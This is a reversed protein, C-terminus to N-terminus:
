RQIILKQVRQGEKNCVKVLYIGSPVDGINLSIFDSGNISITKAFLQVGDLTLLTVTADEQQESSMAITILDSAPNPYIKFNIEHLVENTASVPDERSEVITGGEPATTCEDDGQDSTVCTEENYSLMDMFEIDDISWGMGNHTNAITGFRFRVQIDKGLWSSLDVYTAHFDDGGDGSFAKLGTSIFTRYDLSRKYGNRIMDEGLQHWDTEGLERVEVLGGNMGAQTQYRHYFRLVPHEGDVHFAYVDPNLMLAQQSKDPIEKTTWSFSGSHAPVSDNITWNNAAASGITYATWTTDNVNAVNDLFIRKSWSESSTHLKYIITDIEGPNLNGLEFLLDQGQQIATYNASNAMFTTGDPIIDKVVVHTAIEDKYNGVHISVQIDEGPQIFDTVSKTIIISHSCAPPLDFAEVQDGADESSGQDASYGLGRRAFVSWLLCIDDGNYLAEDAAMIANRADVFGPDCAVNKLGDVVLRIAKYNGSSEDYPNASWGYQDALAWYMDWLMNAWVEGIEHIEQNIAVDGYTLPSVNMDTSYSFRRLGNDGPSEKLVYTAIGRRTTGNDGPQVTTGLAFFDSWGEKMQEANDLCIKDPGGALRDSIGHGFEHAIISGQLDSDLRNPGQQGPNVITVKLGHGVYERLTKAIKLPVSIVPIHVNPADPGAAMNYAKNDASCIIVGIAGANQAQLAKYGFQCAGRDIMAIKGVLESANLIDQCADATSPSEVGDNVLVVEATVPVDTVYTGDGWGASPVNTYYKGKIGIPENVLLYSPFDYFDYMFITPSKGENRNFYEANNFVTDTASGSQAVAWIFDNGLGGRGYNNKQFNGAAEDFGFHYSFDHMYNLWYFLNVVGANINQGADQNPDFPFDFNLEPGGDPEDHWSFGSNTTDQYAFVNNGDTITYEPGVQGDTDHWGYPSALSDSPNVVLTRPGQDPGEFPAPWVNYQAGSSPTDKVPQVPNVNTTFAKTNEADICDDVGRRFSNETITCYSTQNNKNLVEGTLADVRVSWGDHTGLPSYYIDWSLFLKGHYPQYMLEATIDENAIASNEFVYQSVKISPKRQMEIAAIGFNSALHIIAEEPHLVPTISNIKNALDGVFRSTAFYIKGEKTLCVNLIANHVPIGKYRQLFYIRTIGSSKDSYRDSITMDAVDPGTLGWDKLHADIYQHAIALPDLTDSSVNNQVYQIERACLSGSPRICSLLILLTLVTKM